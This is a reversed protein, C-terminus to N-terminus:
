PQLAVTTFDTACTTAFDEVGIYVTGDDPNVTVLAGEQGCMDKRVTQSWSQHGTAVNAAVTLSRGPEQDGYKDVLYGTGALYFSRGDPSLAADGVYEEAFNDDAIRRVWKSRGTTESYAVVLEHSTAASRSGGTLVSDGAVIVTGGGRPSVLMDVAYDDHKATQYRRAWLQRGSAAAYAVTAFGVGLGKKTSRGTVFVRQGNHSM